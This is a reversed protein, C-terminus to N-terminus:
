RGMTSSLGIRDLTPRVRDETPGVERVLGLVIRVREDRSLGKALAYGDLGVRPFGSSSPNKTIAASGSYSASFLSLHILRPVGSKKGIAM